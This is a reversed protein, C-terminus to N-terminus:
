SNGGTRTTNAYLIKGLLKGGHIIRKMIYRLLGLIDFMKDSIIRDLFKFIAHALM